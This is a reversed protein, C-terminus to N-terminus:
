GQSQNKTRNREKGRRIVDEMDLPTSEGSDIGQQIEARLAQLKVERLMDQEQLVKLAEKIVESPSHYLGSEVKNQIYRELEATLSINM